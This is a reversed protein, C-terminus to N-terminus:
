KKWQGHYCSKEGKYMALMDDAKAELYQKM